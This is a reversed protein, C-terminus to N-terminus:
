RRNFNEFGFVIVVCGSQVFNVERSTKGVVTGEVVEHDAIQSMTKEYMAELQLREESKYNDHRKPDINWDFNADPTPKVRVQNESM